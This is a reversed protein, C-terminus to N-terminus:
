NSEDTEPLPRSLYFCGGSIVGTIALIILAQNAPRKLANTFDEMIGGSTGYLMQMQRTEARAQAEQYQELRADESRSGKWYVLGASILGIALVIIGIWKLRAKEGHLSAAGATTETTHESM